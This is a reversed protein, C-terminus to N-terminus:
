EELSSDEMSSVEMSSVEESNDMPATHTIKYVSNYYRRGGTNEEGGCSWEALDAYHSWTQMSDGFEASISMRPDIYDM